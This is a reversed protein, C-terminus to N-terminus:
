RPSFQLLPEIIHTFRTNALALIPDGWDTMAQMSSALGGTTLSDYASGWEFIKYNLAANFEARVAYWSYKLLM